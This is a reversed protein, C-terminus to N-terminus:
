LSRQDLKLLRVVGQSVKPIILYTMPIALGIGLFVAGFLTLYHNMQVFAGGSYYGVLLLAFSKPATAVLNYFLFETYPMRALGAAVLVPGGFGHALKGLLLTKGAHKHFHRELKEVLKESLGVFKGWRRIAAKGGRGLGYYLTDGTLDGLLVLGYVIWFNMQGLFVLFGAVVTVIPGEAVVIPFLLWYRYTVLWGIVHLLVTNM